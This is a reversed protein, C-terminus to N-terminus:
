IIDVTGEANEISPSCARQLARGRRSFFQNLFLIRSTVTQFEQPRFLQKLLIRKKAQIIIM